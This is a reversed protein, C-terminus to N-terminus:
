RRRHRNQHCRRRPHRRHTSCRPLSWCCRRPWRRPPSWSRRPNWHARHGLCRRRHASQGRRDPCSSPRRPHSRRLRPALRSHRLARWRLRKLLRGEPCRFRARRPCGLLYVTLSCSDSRPARASRNSMRREAEEPAQPSPREAVASVDLATADHFARQAPSSRENQELVRLVDVFISLAHRFRDTEDRGSFM